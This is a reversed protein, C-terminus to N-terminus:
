RGGALRRRALERHYAGLPASDPDSDADIAQQWAERAAAHDGHAHLADGLFLWNLRVPFLETARCLHAVAREADGLPWPAKSLFRGRLRLPGAAEIAEDAALADFTAAECDSGLGEFLARTPGVSWALLSTHIARYLLATPDSPALELAREAQELGEGTLAEVEARLDPSLSDEASLVEGLTATPRADLADIVARQVRADAALFLARSAAVLATVDSADSRLAARARSAQADFDACRPFASPDEESTPGGTLVEDVDLRPGACSVLALAVFCPLAFRMPAPTSPTSPPQPLDKALRRSELRSGAFRASRATAWCPFFSILPDSKTGKAGRDELVQFHDRLPYTKSAGGM